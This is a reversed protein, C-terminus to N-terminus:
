YGIQTLEKNKLYGIKAHRICIKEPRKTIAEIFDYWDVEKQEHTSISEILAKIDRGNIKIEKLETSYGM